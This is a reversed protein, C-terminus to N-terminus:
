MKQLKSRIKTLKELNQEIKKVATNNIKDRFISFPNSFEEIRSKQSSKERFKEFKSKKRSCIQKKLAIM